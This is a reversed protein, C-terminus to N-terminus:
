GMGLEKLKRTLTNRGWGLLRAAEQKHGLTHRLATTLLTRELETQAEYLLNQHGARLARDAWQALLTAWSDPPLHSSSDPASAEFLEGPLDQILVEQGAAMVTLWRCTNELQRVNGPWALRTLATETEPHLLKAEVGLEHAAVQM